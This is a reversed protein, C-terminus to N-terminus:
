VGATKTTITVIVACLRPRPPVPPWFLQVPLSQVFAAAADKPFSHFQFTPKHATSNM